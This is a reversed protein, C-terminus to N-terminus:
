QNIIHVVVNRRGFARAENYTNFGLDIRNGRIARGVDGAIAFGYGEIYLRTGLPIVNPDVAVVGKGAKLGTATYGDAYPGCSKPGPDYATAQMTKVNRSYFGRSPLSSGKGYLVVRPSPSKIQKSSVREKLVRKGDAYTLQYTVESIGDAGVDKIRSHGPRLAPSVERITQRAIAEKVTVTKIEVRIIRARMGSQVPADLSPFVKDGPNVTINLERLVDQLSDASSHVERTQGDNILTFTVPEKTESSAVVISGCLAALAIVCVATAAAVVGSHKRLM